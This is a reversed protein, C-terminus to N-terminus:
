RRSFEAWTSDTESVRVSETEPWRSCCWLFLHRALLESTCLPEPLQRHDYEADLYDRLPVLEGFDRVFGHSINRSSLVVTVTYNHGHLRRCPHTDPLWPICHAASFKFQKSVRFVNSVRFM